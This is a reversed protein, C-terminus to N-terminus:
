FLCRDEPSQTAVHDQLMLSCIYLQWDRHKDLRSGSCLADHVNSPLKEWPIEVTQPWNAQDQLPAESSIKSTQGEPLGAEKRKRSHIIM